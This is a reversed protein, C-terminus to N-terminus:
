HQLASSLENFRIRKREVTVKTRGAISLVTLLEWDTLGYATLNFRAFHWADSSRSAPLVAVGFKNQLQPQLGDWHSDACVLCPLHISSKLRTEQARNKILIAADLRDRTGHLFVFPAAFSVRITSQNTLAQLCQFLNTATIQLDPQDRNILYFDDAVAPLFVLAKVTQNSTFSRLCVPIFNKRGIPVTEGPLPMRALEDTWDAQSVRSCALVALFAAIRRLSNM